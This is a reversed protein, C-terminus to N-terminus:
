NWFDIAGFVNVLEDLTTRGRAFLAVGENGMKRQGRAPKGALSAPDDLMEFVAQRGSYGTHNCKACGKAKRLTWTKPDGLTPDAQVFSEVLSLYSPDRSLNLPTACADCLTRVLRQAGVLRLVSKLLYDPVGMDRMRLAAESARNAHLTSLVLHGTMAARVALEATEADRIEGVMLVDPDHRLVSRLASAFTWGLEPNIDIQILGPTQIEVPNEITIIKRGIQNIEALAAHLTTTKGSGTPGTVLILGNPQHLANQLKELAREPMSLGDLAARQQTNDLLRLVLAEGHVAPISAVRIDIKRGSAKQRIRGDQPLRRESIDMGALIKLRSVVGDYLYREMAATEVLQGDIRMRVRPGKELAEVHIDTAKAEVAKAFLGDLYKVTPANNALEMLRDTDSADGEFATLAEAEPEAAFSADEKALAESRALAAEIDRDTAVALDLQGGFIMQLAQLTQRAKPNAVVVRAGSDTVSLLALSHFKMYDVSLRDDQPLREPFDDFALLPLGHEEAVTKAWETQSVIGLRDLVVRIPQGTSSAAHRARIVDPGSLTGDELFRRPIEIDDLHVTVVRNM